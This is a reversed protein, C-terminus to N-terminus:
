AGFLRRWWSRKEQGPSGQSGDDNGRGESATGPSERQAPTSEAPAEIAPIRELAAALLRRHEANARNAEDLQREVRAIQEQLAEVLATAAGTPRDTASPDVSRDTSPDGETPVIVLVEGDPGRDDSRKLTGRRFRSRVADTTIDLIEAAEAVTSV